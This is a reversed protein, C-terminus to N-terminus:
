VDDRGEDALWKQMLEQVGLLVEIFWKMIALTFVGMLLLALSGWLWAVEKTEETSLFWNWAAAQAGAAAMVAILAHAAQDLLTKAPPILRISVATASVLAYLPAKIDLDTGGFRVAALALLIVVCLIVKLTMETKIINGWHSIRSHLVDRGKIQTQPPGRSGLYFLLYSCWRM